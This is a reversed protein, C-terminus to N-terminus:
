KSGDVVLNIELFVMEEKNKNKTADFGIRDKIVFILVIKDRFLVYWLVVEKAEM